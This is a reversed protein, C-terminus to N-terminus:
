PAPKRLGLAVGAGLTALAPILLLYSAGEDLAGAPGHGTRPLAMVGAEEATLGTRVVPLV